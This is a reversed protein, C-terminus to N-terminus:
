TVPRTYIRTFAFAWALTLALVSIGIVFSAVPYLFAWRQGTRKQGQGWLYMVFWGAMMCLLPYVPLQYRMTPNFALSQWGFYLATWGWLLIHQREEKLMRWAMVLFGTWALIGLPLGLGWVTLNTFSYLHTRRTWQLNWPLDATGTAQAYQEKLNAIWQMNPLLGIFAYPQFIRFTLLTALGGALLYITLLLWHETPRDSELPHDESPKRMFRLALAGPLVVALVVANIKSAAGLGLALGFFISNWLVPDHILTAFSFARRTEDEGTSKPRDYAIRVAFYLALYMWPNMFLDVTFYHSQQIQMVALASFSAALLATRRGYLRAVILYLILVSLLDALASFERGLLKIPAAHSGLLEYTYRVLFLPLTGYVYFPAGRNNPNLTSNATDFFEPITMWRQREPPCADISVGRELCAHARLNEAVGSLFLEDPHQNQFEGWDAGTIRLWTALALVLILLLDYIWARKESTLM